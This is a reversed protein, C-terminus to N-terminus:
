RRHRGAIRALADRVCPTQALLQQTGPSLREAIYQSISEAPNKLKAAFVESQHIDVLQFRATDVLGAAVTKAVQTSVLAGVFNLCTAMIIANRPSLVRTSVVTAIANATDHFGNIYDFALTFVVILVVLLSISLM